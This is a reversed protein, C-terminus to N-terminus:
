CLETLILTVLFSIGIMCGGGHIKNKHPQKMGKVQEIKLTKLATTEKSAEMEERSPTFRLTAVDEQRYLSTYLLTPSSSSDYWTITSESIVTRDQTEQGNYKHIEGM